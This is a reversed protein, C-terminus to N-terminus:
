NDISEEIKEQFLVNKVGRNKRITVLTEKLIGNNLSRSNANFIGLEILCEEGTKGDQSNFNSLDKNLQKIHEESLIQRDDIGLSSLILHGMDRQSKSPVSNNELNPRFLFGAINENRLAMYPFALNIARMNKNDSFLWRNSPLKISFDNNMIKISRSGDPNLVSSFGERLLFSVDQRKGKELRDIEAEVEELSNKRQELNNELEFRKPDDLPLKSIQAEINQIESNLSETEEEKIVIAKKLGEEHTKVQQLQYDMGDVSNIHAGGFERSIEFKTETSIETSQSIEALSLNFANENNFDARSIINQIAQREAPPKAESFTSLKQFNRWNEAWVSVSETGEFKSILLQLIATPSKGQKSLQEKYTKVQEATSLENNTDIIENKTETIENEKLSIGFTSLENNLDLDAKKHEENEIKERFKTQSKQQKKKYNFQELSLSDVNGILSDASELSDASNRMLSFKEPM